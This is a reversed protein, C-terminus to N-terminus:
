LIHCYSKYFSKKKPKKFIDQLIDSTESNYKLKSNIQYLEGNDEIYDLSSSYFISSKLNDIKIKNNIIDKVNIFTSQDESLENILIQFYRPFEWYTEYPDSFDNILTLIIKYIQDISFKTKCIKVVKNVNNVSLRNCKIKEIYLKDQSIGSYGHSDDYEHTDDYQYETNDIIDDSDDSDTLIDHSPNNFDYYCNIDLNFTFTVPKSQLYSKGDILGLSTKRYLDNQENTVDEITDEIYLALKKYEPLHNSEWLKNEPYKKSKHEYRHVYNYTPIYALYINKNM